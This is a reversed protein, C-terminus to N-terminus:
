RINALDSDIAALVEDNLSQAGMAQLEKLTRGRAMRIMGNNVLDPIHILLVEKTASNDLLEGLTTDATSYKQTAVAPADSISSEAIAPSAALVCIALITFLVKNM